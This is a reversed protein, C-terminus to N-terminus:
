PRPHMSGNTARAKYIDLFRRYDVVDGHLAPRLMRDWQESTLRLERLLRTLVQKAEAAQVAGTAAAMHDFTQQLLKRHKSIMSSVAEFEKSDEWAVKASGRFANVWETVDIVGDSRVDILDFLDKVVNFSPCAEKSLSYLQTVLATFASHTLLGNREPNFQRFADKPTLMYSFMMEKLRTLPKYSVSKIRDETETSHFNGVFARWDIWGDKNYDARSILGDIARSTLGLNLQRVANRFEISSVKGTGNHDIEKFVKELNAPSVQVVKSFSKIPNLDTSKVSRLTSISMHATTSQPSRSALSGRLQQSSRPTSNLFKVGEFVTSFEEFGLLAKDKVLVRWLSELEPRAFRSPILANAAKEFDAFNVKGQLQSQKYGLFYEFASLSDKFNSRITDKFERVVQSSWNHGKFANLWDHSTLFGKSHPDLRAFLQQLLEHTLNFGKLAQSRDLYTTLQLFSVKLGREAVCEFSAELSSFQRSLHLGLQQKANFLWDTESGEEFLLKFDALQVGGRKYTDLLKYLRDLRSPPIEREEIKLLRVLSDKLDYKSIIGDFDKDFARFASEVTLGERQIWQRIRSVTAEEWDWNDGFEKAKTDGDKLVSVFSDFDILGIRQKDMIAFLGEKVPQSLEVIKSLGSILDASTLLGKHSTDFLDFAERFNIHRAVLAKCIQKIVSRAQEFELPKMPFIKSSKLSMCTLNTLVATLDDESIVGDQNIDFRAAVDSLDGQDKSKHVKSKLFASFKSVSVPEKLRSLLQPISLENQKIFIVLRDATSRMLDVKPKGPARMKDIFDVYDVRRSGDRDLIRALREIEINRLGLRADYICDQFDALALKGTHTIDREEFLKMLQDPHKTIKQEIKKLIMENWDGSYDMVDLSLHLLLDQVDIWGKAGCAGLALEAAKAPTLTHDLRQLAMAFMHPTLRQQDHLNMKILLDDAELKNELIVDRLILFVGDEESLKNQWENLDVLGDCKIDLDKFLLTGEHSNFNFQEMAALFQSLNLEASRAGGAELIYHWSDESSIRTARLWNRITKYCRKLMESDTEHRSFADLFEAETLEGRGQSAREFALKAEVARVRGGSLENVTNVFALVSVQNSSDKSKLYVERLDQTQMWTRVKELLDNSSIPTLARSGLSSSLSLESSSDMQLMSKAQQILELISVEDFDLSAERLLAKLQHINVNVGAKKLVSLVASSPHKLRARQGNQSAIQAIALKKEWILRALPEVASSDYNATYDSKLSVSSRSTVPWASVKHRKLTELFERYKVSDGQVANAYVLAEDVAATLAGDGISAVTIKFEKLSIFGSNSPDKLQLSLALRNLYM